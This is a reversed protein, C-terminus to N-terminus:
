SEEELLLLSMIPGLGGGACGESTLTHINFPRTFPINNQGVIVPADASNTISICAVEDPAVRFNMGDQATVFVRFRFIINTPDSADLLDQNGSIGPDLNFGTLFQVTSQLELTGNTELEGPLGGNSTRLFWLGDGCNQWLFVGRDTFRDFDPIGCNTREPMEQAFSAQSTTISFLTFSFIAVYKGAFKFFNAYRKIFDMIELGELFNVLWLYNDKNNIM